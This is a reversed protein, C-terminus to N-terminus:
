ISSTHLIVQIINGPPEWALPVSRVKTPTERSDTIKMDKVTLQCIFHSSNFQNTAREHEFWVNLIYDFM